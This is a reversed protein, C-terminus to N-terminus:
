NPFCASYRNRWVSGLPCPPRPRSWAPCENRAAVGLEWGDVVCAGGSTQHCGPGCLDAANAAGLLAVSGAFLVAALFVKGMNEEMITGREPTM